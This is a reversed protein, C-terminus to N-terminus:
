YLTHLPGITLPAVCHSSSPSNPAHTPRAERDWLITYWAAGLVGAGGVLALAAESRPMHAHPAPPPPRTSRRRGPAAPGAPACGCAAGRQSLHASCGVLLLHGRPGALTRRMSGGAGGARRRGGLGTRSATSCGSEVRAHATRRTEAWAAGWPPRSSTCQTCCFPPETCPTATCSHPPSPSAAPNPSRASCTRCRPRPQPTAARSSLM